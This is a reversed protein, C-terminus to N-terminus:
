ASAKTAARKRGGGKGRGGRGGRAGRGRSGGAPAAAEEGEGEKKEEAEGEDDDGYELEVSELKKLNKYDMKLLKATKQLVELDLFDTNITQEPLLGHEWLKYLGKRVEKGATPKAVNPSSTLQVLGWNLQRMKAEYLVNEVEQQETDMNRNAFVKIRAYVESILTVDKRLQKEAASVAAADVESGSTKLSELCSKLGVVSKNLLKNAESYTNAHIAVHFSWDEM